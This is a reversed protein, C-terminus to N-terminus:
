CLALVPGQETDGTVLGKNLTARWTISYYIYSPLAENNVM